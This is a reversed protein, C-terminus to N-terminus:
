EKSPQDLLPAMSISQRHDTTTEGGYNQVENTRGGLGSFENYRAGAAGIGRAVVGTRYRWALWLLGAMCIVVLIVIWMGIM